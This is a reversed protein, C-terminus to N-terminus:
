DSRRLASPVSSLTLEEQPIGIDIGERDFAYKIRSRLERAVLWQKLPQTKIWLRLTIGRYDLSEVGLIEPPELIFRQWESEQSLDTTIQRLLTLVKALDNQHAITM